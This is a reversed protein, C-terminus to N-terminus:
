ALLSSVTQGIGHEENHAPVVVDFRLSPARSVPATTRRAMVALAALYGSAALPPLACVALVLDAWMDLKDPKGDWPRDGTHSGHGPPPRSNALWQWRRAWSFFARASASDLTAG